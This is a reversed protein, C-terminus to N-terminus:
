MRDILNAKAKNRRTDPHVLPELLLEVGVASSAFFNM